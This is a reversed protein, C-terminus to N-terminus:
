EIGQLKQKRLITKEKIKFLTKEIILTTKSDLHEEKKKVIVLLTVM